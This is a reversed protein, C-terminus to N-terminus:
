HIPKETEPADDEDEEQASNEAIQDVARVMIAANKAIYALADKYDDSSDVITRTITMNLTAMKIEFPHDEMLSVIKEHIAIVIKAKELAESIAEITDDIMNSAQSSM